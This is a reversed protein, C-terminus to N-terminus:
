FHHKASSKMRNFNYILGYQLKKNEVLGMREGNMTNIKRTVMIWFVMGLVLEM